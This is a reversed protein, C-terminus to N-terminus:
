NRLLSEDLPYMVKAHNKIVLEESLTDGTRKDITKRCVSNNRFFNDGEKSFYNEREYLHYSHPLEKNALLKGRLYEGDVYTVLQFTIATNNKVRYDKYNYMISTGVGFPVVRGCDPFLDMQNHHHHEVITLPSHLVMWHILNTFQCMGGGTGKGVGRLAIILGDKYGKKASCKGVLRWFSFTEGPRIVVRDVKPASIALNIAKNEQLEMDVNGLRRRILSNHKYICLPLEENQKSKAYKEGSLFNKVHRKFVEKLYSIKYALPCLECFLRRGLTFMEM